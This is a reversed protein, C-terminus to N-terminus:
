YGDDLDRHQDSYLAQMTGEWPKTEDDFHGWVVTVPHLKLHQGINRNSLGSRKLLAPTQIAGCAAVVARSRVTVRHGDITGAEVGRAEGGEVIVRNARTKIVM